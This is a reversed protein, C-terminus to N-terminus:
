WILPLLPPPLLPSPAFSCTMCEGQLTSLWVVELPPQVFDLPPFPLELPPHFVWPQNDRLVYPQFGSLVMTQREPEWSAKRTVAMATLCVTGRPGIWNCRAPSPCLHLEGVLICCTSMFLPCKLSAINAHTSMELGVYTTDWSRPKSFKLSFLFGTKLINACNDDRLIPSFPLSRSYLCRILLGLVFATQACEYSFSIQRRAWSIVPCYM